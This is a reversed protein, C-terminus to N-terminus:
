IIRTKARTSLNEPCFLEANVVPVYIKKLLFLSSVTKKSRKGVFIISASHFIVVDTPAGLLSSLQFRTKEYYCHFDIFSRTNPSFAFASSGRGYVFRPLERQSFM